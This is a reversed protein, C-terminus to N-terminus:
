ADTAGAFDGQKLQTYIATLLGDPSDIMTNYTASDTAQNLAFYKTGVSLSGNERANQDVYGIIDARIQKNDNDVRCKSIKWYSAQVGYDTNISLILAM